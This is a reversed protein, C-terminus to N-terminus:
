RMSLSSPGSELRVTQVPDTGGRWSISSRAMKYFYYISSVEEDLFPREHLLHSTSARYWIHAVVYQAYMECWFKLSRKSNAGDFIDGDEETLNVNTTRHKVHTQMDERDIVIIAELYRPLDGTKMAPPLLPTPRSITFCSDLNPVGTWASTRLFTGNRLKLLTEM